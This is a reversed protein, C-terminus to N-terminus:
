LYAEIGEAAFIETDQGARSRLASVLNIFGVFYEHIITLTAQGFFQQSELSISLRSNNMWAEIEPALHPFDDKAIELIIAKCPTLNQSLSTFVEDVEAWVDFWSPTRFLSRPRQGLIEYKFIAPLRQPTDFAVKSLPSQIQLLPLLLYLGKKVLSLYTAADAAIMQYIGGISVSSLMQIDAQSHGQNPLPYGMGSIANLFSCEVWKRTAEDWILREMMNSFYPQVSRVGEWVLQDIAEAPEILPGGLSEPPMAAVMIALAEAVPLGRCLTINIPFTKKSMSDVQAPYQAPGIDHDRLQILCDESIGVLYQPRDASLKKLVAGLGELGPLKVRELLTLLTRVDDATEIRGKRLLLDMDASLPKPVVRNELPGKKHFIQVRLQSNIEMLKPDMRDPDPMCSAVRNAFYAAQTNYYEEKLGLRQAECLFSEFDADSTMDVEGVNTLPAGIMDQLHRFSALVEKEGSQSALNSLALDVKDKAIHRATMYTLVRGRLMLGYTHILPVLRQAMLHDYTHGGYDFIMIRGEQLVKAMADFWLVANLNVTIEEGEELHFDRRHVYEKLADSSLEGPYEWLVGNEMQIYVEQYQGNVMKLKHVPFADPLENSLFVGRVSNEPFLGDLHIADGSVWQVQKLFPKLAERQERELAPSIEVITYNVAEQFIKWDLDGAANEALTELISKAFHGTGAGMEVVDFRNPKGMSKWQEFLDFAVGKGFDKHQVTQTGFESMGANGIFPIHRKRTYFGLSPHYLVLQMFQAYTVRGRQQLISFLQKQINTWHDQRRKWIENFSINWSLQIQRIYGYLELSDDSCHLLDELAYALESLTANRSNRGGRQWSPAARDLGLLTNAEEALLQRYLPMGEQISKPKSPLSGSLVPDKSRLEWLARLVFIMHQDEVVSQPVACLKTFEANGIGLFACSLRLTNLAVVARKLYEEHDLARSLILLSKQADAVQKEVLIRAIRPDHGDAVMVRVKHAKLKEMPHVAFSSTPALAFGDAELARSAGSWADPQVHGM